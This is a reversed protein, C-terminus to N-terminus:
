QHSVKKGARWLLIFFMVFYFPTEVFTDYTLWQEETLYTAVSYNVGAMCLGIAALGLVFYRHQIRSNVYREFRNGFYSGKNFVGDAILASASLLGMFTGKLQVLYESQFVISFLASILLMTTGFVAFGGLLDAKVFRQIIVLSLGLFVGTFAATTLDGTVKAVIFFAIGIGIDALISPKNRQWQEAQVKSKENAESSNSSVGINELKDTVFHIDKGPHSEYILDDGERVEIGLNLWSFYGVSVTIEKANKYSQNARQLTHVVVKFDDSFSHTCEDLLTGNCFLQSTYTKLSYSYKVEYNDGAYQFPRKYTWLRM